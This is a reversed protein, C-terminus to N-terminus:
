MNLGGIRVLAFFFINSGRLYIYTHDSWPEVIILFTANQMLKGGKWISWKM